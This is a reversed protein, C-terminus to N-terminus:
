QGSYDADTCIRAADRGEGVKARPAGRLVVHPWGLHRKRESTTSFFFSFALLRGHGMGRRQLLSLSLSRRSSVNNYIKQSPAGGDSQQTRLEGICSPRGIEGSPGSRSRTFEWLLVSASTRPPTWFIAIDNRKLLAV